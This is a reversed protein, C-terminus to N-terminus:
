TTVVLQSALVALRSPAFDGNAEVVLVSQIILSADRPYFYRRSSGM